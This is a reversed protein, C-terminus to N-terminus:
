GSVGNDGLWGKSGNGFVTWSLFYILSNNIVQYRLFDVFSVSITCFLNFNSISLIRCTASSEMDRKLPDMVQVRGRDVEINLLIWHFRCM